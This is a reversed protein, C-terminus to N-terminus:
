RNDYKLALGISAILHYTKRTENNIMEFKNIIIKNIIKYREGIM